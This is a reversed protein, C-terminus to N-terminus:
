SVQQKRGSKPTLRPFNGRQDRCCNAFVERKKRWYMEREDAGSLLPEELGHPFIWITICRQMCVERRAVGMMGADPINFLNNIVTDWTSGLQSIIMEQRFFYVFLIM